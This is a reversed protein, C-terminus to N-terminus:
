VFDVVIDDQNEAVAKSDVREEKALLTWDETLM